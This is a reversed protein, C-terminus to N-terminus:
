STLLPRIKPVIEINDRHNEHLVRFTIDPWGDEFAAPYHIHITSPDCTSSKILMFM